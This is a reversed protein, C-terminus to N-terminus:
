GYLSALIEITEYFFRYFLQSSKSFVSVDQLGGALQGNSYM